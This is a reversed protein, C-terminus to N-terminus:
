RGATFTPRRKMTRLLDTTSSGHLHDEIGLLLKHGSPFIHSQHKDSTATTEVVGYVQGDVM